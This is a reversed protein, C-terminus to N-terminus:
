LLLSEIRHAHVISEAPSWEFITFRGDQSAVLAASDHQDQVFQAASLHRTGGLKEPHVLEAEGGEIPETVAVQEVLPHGKRRTIKAGFALVDLQDTLVVAGDVATLGAVADVTRDLRAAEVNAERALEALRSFPPSVLYPIPWVISERWAHDTGPAALAPVVLLSGGRGHARMSVALQVLLNLSQAPGESSEAGLLAAMLAPSDPISASRRDIMKVQDGELVAVNVYKGKTEHSHHKIVILGAAAVEVVLCLRPITRTAGWVFLSDRQPSVGLHIGPREVAPSVKTLLGPDLPLPRELLLPAVSEEPSLYALSIKPIFSEERRLSAWFAVDVLAQISEVSPLTAFRGNGGAAQVEIAQRAFYQHIKPAVIRAAPYAAELNM